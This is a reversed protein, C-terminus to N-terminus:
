KLFDKNYKKTEGFFAVRFRNCGTKPNTGQNLKLVVTFEFKTGQDKATWFSFIKEIASCM